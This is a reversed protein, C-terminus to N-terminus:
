AKVIWVTVTATVEPHLKVPVHYTGLKTIPAELDIQRKEVAVGQATLAEALDHATISGHLKDQEGVKAPITCSLAALREAVAQAQRRAAEVKAAARRQLTEVLRTRTPTAPTALGRPLLYNRAYGDKVTVITGPTGLSPVDQTLIIKM